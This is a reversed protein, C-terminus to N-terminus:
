QHHLLNLEIIWFLHLLMLALSASGVWWVSISIPYGCPDVGTYDSLFNVCPMMVPTSLCSCDLPISM